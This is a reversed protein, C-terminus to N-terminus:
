AVRRSSKCELNRVNSKSLSIEGKRLVSDAIILEPDPNRHLDDLFQLDVLFIEASAIAM